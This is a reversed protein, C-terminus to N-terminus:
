VLNKFGHFYLSENDGNKSTAKEDNQSLRDGSHDCDNGDLSNGTQRAVPSSSNVATM